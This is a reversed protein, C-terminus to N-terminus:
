SMYIILQDSKQWIQTTRLETPSEVLNKHILPHGPQWSCHWSDKYAFLAFWAAGLFTGVGLMTSGMDKSERRQGSKAWKKKITGGRLNLSGKLILLFLNTEKMGRGLGTGWEGPSHYRVSSHNKQKNSSGSLILFCPHCKTNLWSLTITSKSSRPLSGQFSHSQYGKLNGNSGWPLRRLNKLGVTDTLLALIISGMMEFVGVDPGHGCSERLASGNWSADKILTDDWCSSHHTIEM